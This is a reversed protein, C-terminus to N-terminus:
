DVKKIFLSNDSLSLRWTKEGKIELMFDEPKVLWESVLNGTEVIFVHVMDDIIVGIKMFEFVRRM